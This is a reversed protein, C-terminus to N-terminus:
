PSLLFPLVEKQLLDPATEMAVHQQGPLIATTANPLIEQLMATANKMFVPSDSGLLFLTPIKLSRLKDPNFRFVDNAKGERPLTFAAALRHPWSPQIRAQEIEHDPMMVAEKMFTMIIGERDGAAILKEFKNLLPNNTKAPEDFPHLPPEYLVLKHINPTLFAAGLSCIAGYSHSFINVPEDFYDAIAAIDEFERELAYPGGEVISEGRGRRDMACVTFHKDFLSYIPIWRQHATGTGHVLLLPPGSGSVDCAIRTGDKSTVKVVIGGSIKFYPV